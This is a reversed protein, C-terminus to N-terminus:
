LQVEKEKTKIITQALLIGTETVVKDTSFAKLNSIYASEKRTIKKLNSIDFNNRNQDLFIIYEDDRLKVGYHKQYILRQKYEWKHSGVKVQVMGDAKVRESGIPLPKNPHSKKKDEFKYKINHHFLYIRLQKDDMSEKFKENVISLLEKATYEEAHKELWKHMELNFKRRKAM